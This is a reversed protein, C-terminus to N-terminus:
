KMEALWYNKRCDLCKAGKKVQCIMDKDVEMPCIDLSGLADLTANPFMKLLESQRTEIPHDASWKEIISIIEEPHNREFDSCAERYKNNLISVPCKSCRVCLTCMRKKAKLYEFADM